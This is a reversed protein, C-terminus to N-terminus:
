DIKVVKRIVQSGETFIKVFFLGKPLSDSPITHILTGTVNEIDSNYLLQGQTSIVQISTNPSFSGISEILINDKTPNPFINVRSELPNEASLILTIFDTVSDTCGNVDTVTLTIQLSGISTFTRVPNQLTSTSGNGFQWFWAVANTSQDTFTIATNVASETLASFQAIPNPVLGIEVVSSESECNLDVDRVTVSFTGADNVLISQSTEGNSWIYEDAEAATLELTNGECLSSSGSLTIKPIAKVNVMAATRVSEYENDANSVYFVTDNLLTSTVITPGTHFPEGDTFDYYWKFNGAGTATIEATGGYCVEVTPVVPKPATLTLNYLTKAAQASELLAELDAAGHIAFAITIEEEPALNFPGVSVVHSVDGGGTAVGADTRLTSLSTFKEADTYDDYIGFPNGQIAQDNDIAFYNASNTLVQIGALPLTPDDKPFIYGLKQQENWAAGDGASIDWDAFIGFRYDSIAAATPNSVKYELIVFKDNPSNKWVLSRYTVLIKQNALATTNSFKGFIESASRQGPISQNIKDIEVFDQDSPGAPNLGRVNNLIETSSNGMLLGMEYLLPTGNFEFGLGRTQKDGDYGVRGISSVTTTIQNDEINIYSPNLTISFAQFDQYDGDSFTFVLDITMNPPTSNSVTFQFPDLQLSIKSKSGIIGPFIKSKSFSILNSTSSVSIEIGSSTSSMNNTFEAFLIGKEGPRIASSGAENRIRIKSARLSPFDSTLARYADLRGKGLKYKYGTSNENYFNEDATVRIREAVEPATLAPFHKWVLAAVGSTIPCSFSTGQTSGYTNPYQTTFIASGPASIDVWNGFTSFTSKRDNADTAGVSLVNDYAAPYRVTETSTNGAAAIVLCGLDETVYNIIDQYIQSRGSGGFSCNIIKFPVNNDSMVAAAYLMGLYLNSSYFTDSEPQDDAYHKTFLLKANFGVGAIGISNDTAAAACGAVMTGHTHGGGKIISVNNDGVFGESGILSSQAGSFDWGFVDDIYGNNDDDVGNNSIENVNRFLKSSLDPHDIDGGSDIIAIVADSSSKSIDWANTARIKSIYYQSNNIYSPDNPSYNNYQKFSPEVLEFYGTSYLGNITSEIQQGPSIIVSYYLSLDVGSKSKEPARRAQSNNIIKQQFIKKVSILSVNNARVNDGDFLKKYGPKIKVLIENQAIENLPTNSDLKFVQKVKNQSLCTLIGFTLFFSGFLRISKM